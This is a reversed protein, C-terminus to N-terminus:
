PTCAPTRPLIGGDDGLNYLGTNHSEVEVFRHRTPYSRWCQVSAPDAYVKPQAIEENAEDAFSLRM